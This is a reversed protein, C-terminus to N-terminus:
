RGESAKKKLAELDLAAKTESELAAFARDTEARAGDPTSADASGLLEGTMLQLEALLRDPDVSRERAAIGPLRERMRAVKAKLDAREAEIAAIKSAIEEAKARAAAALEAMGKGEALGIRGKWLGLDAAAAAIEKEMRKVEVVFAFIYEKAGALDLGSLDTDDM